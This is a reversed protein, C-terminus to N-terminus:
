DSALRLFQWEREVAAEGDKQRRRRGGTVSGPGVNEQWTRRQNPIKSGSRIASFRAPTGTGSKEVNTNTLGKVHQRALERLVEGDAIQSFGSNEM